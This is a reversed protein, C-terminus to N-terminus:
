HQLGQIYLSVAEIQQPSMKRAIDQMMQNPDNPRQVYKKLDVDSAQEALTAANKFTELQARSYAAHQGALAPFAAPDIGEGAPGHCASCAPIGKSMDGGRYLMEGLKLTAAPEAGVGATAQQAPPLSAYYAAVNQMDEDSLLSAQPKMVANPRAGSKFDQLQKVTYKPNQGALSPWIVNASVGEKGHCAACVKAKEAGKTADGQAWAAGGVWLGLLFLVNGLKM